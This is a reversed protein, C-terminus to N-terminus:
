AGEIEQVSLWDVVYAADAEDDTLCNWGRNRAGLMVAEKVKGKEWKPVGNKRAHARWTPTPVGVCLIQREDCLALLIGEQRRIWNQSQGRAGVFHPDEYAVALPHHTDLLESVQRFWWGAREPDTRQPLILSRTVVFKDIRVAVAGKAGLDFGILTVTKAVSCRWGM